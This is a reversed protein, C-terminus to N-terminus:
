GGDKVLGEDKQDYVIKIAGSTAMDSSLSYHRARYGDFVNLALTNPSISGENHAHIIIYNKPKNLKIKVRKKVRSLSYHRLVWHGNVNVSISDGDVKQNDWFELEIEKSQVRVVHQTSIVRDKAPIEKSPKAAPNTKSRNPKTAPREKPAPRNNAWNPRDSTERDTSPQAQTEEKPSNPPNADALQDPRDIPPNPDATNEPKSDKVPPADAIVEKPDIGETNDKNDAIVEEEQPQIPEKPGEATPDTTAEDSNVVVEKPPTEQNRDRNYPNPQPTEKNQDAIAEPNDKDAPQDEAPDEADIYVIRPQKRQKNKRSSRPQDFLSPQRSPADAIVEEINEDPADIDPLEIDPTEVNPLPRKWLNVIRDRSGTVIYNGDISYSFTVVEAEHEGLIQIIREEELDWLKTQYGFNGTVLFRGSGSFAMNSTGKQLTAQVESKVKKRRVDWFQLTGGYTWAALRKAEPQFVLECIYQDDKNPNTLVMGKQYNDLQIWRISHGYGIVLHKQQPDLIGCTIAHTRNSFVKKSQATQFDFYRVELNYGGYYIGRDQPAFAVFSPEDGNLDKYGSARTNEIVEILRQTELEWLRITGDYSATALWEGSHSFEIHTILGKHGKLEYRIKGTKADWLLVQGREDGSVILNDEPRFTVYSVEAGHGIFSQILEFNQSQLSLIFTLFLIPFLLSKKM